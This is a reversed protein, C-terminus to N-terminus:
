NGNWIWLYYTDRDNWFCKWKNAVSMRDIGFLYLFAFILHRVIRYILYLPFALVDSVIFFIEAFVCVIIKGSTILPLESWVRKWIPTCFLEADSKGCPILIKVFVFYFFNMLLILILFAQLIKM